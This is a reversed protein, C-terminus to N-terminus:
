ENGKQQVLRELLGVAMTPADYRSIEAQLRKANEGYTRDKLVKKVADLFVQPRPSKKRLNIGCGSWQVRAAVEMKDETAGALVLPIGHALAMQAAGYGGNTIMVDVYPLLNGFPVFAATRVNNPVQTLDGDRVPVAIVLMDEQRLGEIAPIVVDNLDKAVTGQNVLVVPRPCDLDVWWPPRAYDPIPEPLVPGIFHCTDPLDSRPYEFSPTSLQLILKISAIEYYERSVPKRFPKLGLEARMRNAYANVDHLLLSPIAFNLVRDRTKTLFTRGPLMGLGSPATDKSLISFPTDSLMVSPIGSTESELFVGPTISDGILVDPRFTQKVSGIAQM